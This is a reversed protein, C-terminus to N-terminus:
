SYHGRPTPFLYATPPADPTLDMWRHLNARLRLSFPVIRQRSGKGTIQILLDNLNVDGRRLALLEEARAGTDLYM